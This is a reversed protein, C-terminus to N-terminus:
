LSDPTSKDMIYPTIFFVVDKEDKGNYKSGLFSLFRLFPLGKKSVTERRNNFGGIVITEGNKVTINTTANSKNTYFAIGAMPAATLYSDNINIDMSVLNNDLVTPTIEMDTGTEVKELNQTSAYSSNSTLILYYVSGSSVKAPKGSKVVTYPKSIIKAKSTSVFNDLLVSFKTPLRDSDLVGYTLNFMNNSSNPNYSLNNITGSKFSSMAADIQKTAVSDLSTLVCQIM